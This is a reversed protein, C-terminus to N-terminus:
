LEEYFTDILDQAKNRLSRNEIAGINSVAEEIQRKASALAFHVEEFMAVDYASPKKPKAKKSEAKKTM